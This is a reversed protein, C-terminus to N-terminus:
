GIVDEAIKEAFKGVSTGGFKQVIWGMNPNSNSQPSAGNVLLLRGNPVTM